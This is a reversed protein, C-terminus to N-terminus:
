QRNELISQIDIGRKQLLGAIYGVCMARDEASVANFIKIMQSYYVDYCNESGTDVQKIFPDFKLQFKEAIKAKEEASLEFQECFGSPRAIGLESAVKKENEGFKECLLSFIKYESKKFEKGTILFDISVGFFESLKILTAFDPERSGNEWKVVAVHSYGFMEALQSQTMKREKRLKKLIEGFM